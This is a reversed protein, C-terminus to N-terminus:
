KEEEKHRQLLGEAQDAVASGGHTSVVKGLLKRARAERGTSLLARALRLKAEAELAHGAGSALFAEFRDAAETHRGLRDQLISGALFRARDALPSSLKAVEDYAEVAGKWKGANRRCDGLLMWARTDKAAGQLHSDLAQEAEDFRGEIIWRRAQKVMDPQQPRQGRDSDKEEDMVAGAEVVQNIKACEGLLAALRTLDEDGARDKNLAGTASASLKEGAHLTETLRGQRFVEVTGEGVAVEVAGSEGLFVSFRTGVVRVEYRGAEVLFRRDGDRRAVSCALEGRELTLRVTQGTSEEVRLVGRSSLGIRDDGLSAVTGAPTIIEDTLPVPEAEVVATTPSIESRGDVTQEPGFLVLILAAVAAAALAFIAVRGPKVRSAPELGGRARSVLREIELDSSGAEDREETARVCRSEIGNWLDVIGRCTACEELHTEFVAKDGRDMWGDIYDNIQTCPKM